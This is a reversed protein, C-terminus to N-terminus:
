VHRSPSAYVSSAHATPQYPHVLRTRSHSHMKENSRPVQTDLLLALMRACDKRLAAMESRLVVERLALDRAEQECFV